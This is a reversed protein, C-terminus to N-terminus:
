GQLIGPDGELPGDDIAPHGEDAEEGERQTHSRPVQRLQEDPEDPEDGVEGVVM